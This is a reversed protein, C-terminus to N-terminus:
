PTSIKKIYVDSWKKIDGIYHPAHFFHKNSKTGDKKLAYIEYRLHEIRENFKSEDSYDNLEFFDLNILTRVDAVVGRGFERDTDRDCVLVIEGNAFKRNTEAYDKLELLIEKKLEDEQQLLSRLESCKSRIQEKM